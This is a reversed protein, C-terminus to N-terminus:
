KELDNKPPSFLWEKLFINIDHVEEWDKLIQQKLFLNQKTLLYTDPLLNIFIDKRTENIKLSNKWRMVTM